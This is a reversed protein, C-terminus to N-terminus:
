AEEGISLAKVLEEYLEIIREYVFRPVVKEQEHYYEITEKGFNIAARIEAPTM